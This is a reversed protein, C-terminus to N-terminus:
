ADVLSHHRKDCCWFLWVGALCYQQIDTSTSPQWTVAWGTNSLQDGSFHLSTLRTLASSWAQAVQSTLGVLHYEEEESCALHLARLGTLEALVTLDNPHLSLPWTVYTLQVPCSCFVAHLTANVPHRSPTATSAAM